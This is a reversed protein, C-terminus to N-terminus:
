SLPLSTQPQATSKQFSWMNQLFISQIQMGSRPVSMTNQFFILAMISSFTYKRFERHPPPLTNQWKPLSSDSKAASRLPQENHGPSGKRFSAEIARQTRSLSNCYGSPFYDPARTLICRQIGFPFAASSAPFNESFEKIRMVFTPLNAAPHHKKSIGSYEWFSISQM